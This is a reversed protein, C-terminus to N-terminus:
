GAEQLNVGVGFDRIAQVIASVRYPKAFMVSGAVERPAEHSFGSVYIVPLNPLLSRAHEALDWGSRRHPLRIDTILADIPAQAELYSLAVEYSIAQLVQFGADELEVVLIDLLLKEDEVVLITPLSHM